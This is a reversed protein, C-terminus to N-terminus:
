TTPPIGTLDQLQQHMHTVAHQAWTEFHDLRTLGPRDERLLRYCAGSPLPQLPAIHLRGAAIDDGALSFPVLAVGHGAVAAQVLLGAHSYNRAFDFRRRKIANAEFLRLWAEPTGEFLLPQRLLADVSPAQPLLASSYVVVLVENFLLRGVPSAGAPFYRLAVHCDDGVNVPQDNAEIRVDVEPHQQTFSPIRPILWKMAFSHTTSIRVVAQGEAERIADVKRQLEHLLQALTRSLEVGSETLSVHRAHRTFLDFGLARELQKIQQSVAAPTKNLETAALRFSGWRAACEFDLLGSLSRIKTMM